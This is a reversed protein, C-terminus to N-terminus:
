IAWPVAKRLAGEDYVDRNTSFESGRSLTARIRLRGELHVWPFSSGLKPDSLESTFFKQFRNRSPLIFRHM